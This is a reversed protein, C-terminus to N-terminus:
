APPEQEENNPVPLATLARAEIAALNKEVSTMTMSEPSM